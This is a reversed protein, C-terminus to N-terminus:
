QICCSFEPMIVARGEIAMEMLKYTRWDKQRLCGVCWYEYYWWQRSNKTRRIYMVVKGGDDGRSYFAIIGLEETYDFFDWNNAPLGTACRSCKVGKAEASQRRSPAAGM